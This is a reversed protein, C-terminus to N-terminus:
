LPKIPHLFSPFSRQVWQFNTRCLTPIINLMQCILQPVNVQIHHARNGNFFESYERDMDRTVVHPDFTMHNAFILNSLLDEVIERPDHWFLRIPKTTKCEPVDVTTCKWAPGSPLTDM